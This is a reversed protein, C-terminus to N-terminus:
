SNMQILDLSFVGPCYYSKKTRSMGINQDSGSSRKHYGQNSRQLALCWGLRLGDNESTNVM